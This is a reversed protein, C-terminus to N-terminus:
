TKSDLTVSVVRRLKSALNKGLSFFLKETVSDLAPKYIFILKFEM